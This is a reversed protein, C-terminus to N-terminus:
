IKNRDFKTRGVKREREQAEKWFTETPEFDCLQRITKNSLISYSGHDLHGLYRDYVISRNISSDFHWYYSIWGIHDGIGWTRGVCARARLILNQEIDRVKEKSAGKNIEIMVTQIAKAYQKLGRRHDSNDFKRNIWIEVDDRIGNKNADIGEITSDLESNSPMRPEPMGDFTKITVESAQIDRLKSRERYVSISSPFVYSSVYYFPETVLYVISVFIARIM